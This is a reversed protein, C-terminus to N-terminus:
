WEPVLEQIHQMIYLFMEHSCLRRQKLIGYFTKLDVKEMIKAMQNTVPAPNVFLSLGDNHICVIIKENPHRRFLKAVLLKYGDGGLDYKTIRENAPILDHVFLLGDQNLCKVANNFDKVIQQWHHDGDIFIIDFKKTNGAFFNDSTMLHTVYGCNDVIDVGLKDICKISSFTHGLDIGIELYKKSEINPLSNFIEAIKNM